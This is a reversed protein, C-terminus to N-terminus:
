HAMAAHLPKAASSRAHAVQQSQCSTARDGILNEPKAEIMYFEFCLQVLRVEHHNAAHTSVSLLLDERGGIVDDLPNALDAAGRQARDAVDAAQLTHEVIVGIEDRREVHQGLQPVLVPLQDRVHALRVAEAVLVAIHSGCAQQLVPDILGLPAGPEQELRCAGPIALAQQRSCVKSHEIGLPFVM